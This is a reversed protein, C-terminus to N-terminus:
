YFILTINFFYALKPVFNKQGIIFTQFPHLINIVSRKTLYRHIKGNPSFLYNDFGGVNIWNQFNKWGIDTYIHPSWTVTLPRMGYKYKLIHSQFSSDKGGSGGVLCNYQGKFNRYKECLAKLEREREKWDITGDWKKKVIKCAYCVNNEDFSIPIQKTNKDHKYENTSTPRQNTVNCKVCYKIKKPLGYKGTAVDDKSNM